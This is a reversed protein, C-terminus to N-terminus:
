FFVLMKGACRDWFLICIIYGGPLFVAFVLSFLSRRYLIEQVRTDRTACIIRWDTSKLVEDNRLVDWYHRERRAGWSNPNLHKPYHPRAQPRRSIIYDVKHIAGQGYVYVCVCALLLTQYIHIHHVTICCQRGGCLAVIYIYSLPFSTLPLLARFFPATHLSASPNSM